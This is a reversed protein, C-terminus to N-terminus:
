GKGRIRKVETTGPQVGPSIEPNNPTHISDFTHLRRKSVEGDFRAASLKEAEKQEAFDRESRPLPDTRGKPRGPTIM